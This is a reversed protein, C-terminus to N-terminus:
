IVNNAQRTYKDSYWQYTQKLKGKFEVNVNKSCDSSQNKFGNIIDVVEGLTTDYTNSPACYINNHNEQSVLHRSFQEIIDQVYCYTMKVDRNFVNIELDLIANYIWTSVVSNYNPKCGEGFIHPLRYIWCVVGNKMSYNEILQEASRKTDGYANSSNTAHVTSTFVIPIAKQHKNLLTILKRTLDLNSARFNDDSSTPRVEGALHFIFDAKLICDALYNDDDCRKFEEIKIDKDKQLFKILNKGIFGGSGTILVNTM